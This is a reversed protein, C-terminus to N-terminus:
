ILLNLHRVLWQFFQKFAKSRHSFMNKENIDMEGFTKNSGEPIFIPDFGFGKSGRVELSIKGKVEGKFLRIGYKPHAFAVVCVFKATRDKVSRMLKLIGENGIKKFVYSSYPGPFGKLANIYLGSDELVLPKKLHWM